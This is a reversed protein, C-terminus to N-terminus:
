MVFSIVTNIVTILCSDSLICNLLQSIHPLLLVALALINSWQKCEMRESSSLACCTGMRCVYRKLWKRCFVARHESLHLTSGALTQRLYLPGYHVINLYIYHVELLPRGLGCLGMICYKDGLCQNGKLWIGSFSCCWPFLVLADM